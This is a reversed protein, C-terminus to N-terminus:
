DQKSSPFFFIYKMTVTGFLGYDVTTLYEMPNLCKRLLFYSAFTWTSVPGTFIWVSLDWVCRGLSLWPWLSGLTELSRGQFLLWIRRAYIQSLLGISWVCNWVVLIKNIFYLFFFFLFFSVRQELFLSYANGGLRRDLFISARQGGSTLSETVQWDLVGSGDHSESIEPAIPM